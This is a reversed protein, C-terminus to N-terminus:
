RTASSIEYTDKTFSLTKEMFDEASQVLLVPFGMKEVAVSFASPSGLQFLFFSIGQGFQRIERLIAHANFIDNFGTDSLMFVVCNDRRKTRLDQLAKPDLVTCNGQYQFLAKKVKEIESYPCWGSSVTDFSFNIMNYRLMHAINKMELDKLISYFALAAYHYEGKGNGEFPEFHMSISSDFIFAMDPLNPIQRSQSDFEFDLSFERQHLEISKKSIRTAGWEIRKHNFDSLEVEETGVFHEYTPAELMRAEAQLVVTGARDRYLRDLTNYDMNLKASFPIRKPLDEQKDVFDKVPNSEQTDSSSAGSSGSSNKDFSNNMGKYPQNIFPYIITAYEYAMNKWFPHNRMRETTLLSKEGSIIEQTTKENGSFITIIKSMVRHYSYRAYYNEMYKQLELKVRCLAFNSSIFLTMGKDMRPKFFKKGKQHYFGMLMYTMFLGRRYAETTTHSNLTNIITDSFLNHITMIKQELSKIRLERTKLADYIGSLIAEFREKSFPCTKHHSYEHHVIFYVLTRLFEPYHIEHKKEIQEWASEIESDISVTIKRNELNIYAIIPFPSKELIEVTIDEFAFWGRERIIELCMTKVRDKLEVTM